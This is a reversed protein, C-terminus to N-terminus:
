VLIKKDPSQLRQPLAQFAFVTIASYVATFTMCYQKLLPNMM